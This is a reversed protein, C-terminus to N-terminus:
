SLREPSWRVPRRRGSLTPLCCDKRIFACITGIPSIKINVKEGSKDEPSCGTNCVPQACAFRRIVITAYNPSCNLKKGTDYKATMQLNRAPSLKLNNHRYQKNTLDITPLLGKSHLCAQPHFERFTPIAFSMLFSKCGVISCLACMVRFKVWVPRMVKFWM